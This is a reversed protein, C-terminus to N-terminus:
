QDNTDVGTGDSRHRVCIPTGLGVCISRERSPTFNNNTEVMNCFLEFPEGMRITNVDEEDPFMINKKDIEDQIKNRFMICNM